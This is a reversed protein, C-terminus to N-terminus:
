QITATLGIPPNPRALHTVKAALAPISANSPSNKVAAVVADLRAQLDNFGRRNERQINDIQTRLNRQENSDRDSQVKTLVIVSFGMLVFAALFSHKHRQQSLPYLTAFVGVAIILM